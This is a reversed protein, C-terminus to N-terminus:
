NKWIIIKKKEKRRQFNKIIMQYNKMKLIMIKIEKISKNKNSKKGYKFFYKFKGFFHKKCELFTSIQKEKALYEIEQSAIEVKLDKLRKSNNEIM